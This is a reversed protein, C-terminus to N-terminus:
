RVKGVSKKAWIWIPVCVIYLVTTQGDKRAVDDNISQLAHTKFLLIASKESTLALIKFKTNAVRHNHALIHIETPM